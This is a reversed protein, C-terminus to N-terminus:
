TTKVEYVDHKNEISRFSSIAFMSFGSLTHKSAKTKSSNEPNNKCWDIKEIVYELDAYIIFPAKDSKKYWNHKLIKTDESPMIVNCFDKNKCNKVRNLNTKQELSILPVWVIFIVMISITKKSYSLALGKWKSDNFSYSTKVIPTIKSVLLINKKKKLMCLMLLLQQMIIRSDKGIM